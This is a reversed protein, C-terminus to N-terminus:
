CFFQYINFIILGIPQKSGPAIKIPSKSTRNAKPSNNEKNDRPPQSSEKQHNNKNQNGKPDEKKSKDELFETKKPSNRDTESLDTNSLLITSQSGLNSRSSQSVLHNNDEIPKENSNNM